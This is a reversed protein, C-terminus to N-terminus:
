CINDKEHKSLCLTFKQNHSRSWFIICQLFTSVVVIYFLISSDWMYFISCFLWICNLVDMLIWNNHLETLPFVQRHSYFDFYCNDSRSSTSHSLAQPLRQPAPLPRWRFRSQQCMLMMHFVWWVRRHSTCKVNKISHM